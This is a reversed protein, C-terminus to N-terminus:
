VGDIFLRIALRAAIYLLVGGMVLRRRPLTLMHNIRVGPESGLQAGIFTLPVLSLAVHGVTGAGTYVPTAMLHPVSGAVSTAVMVMSSLAVAGRNSVIGISLALPLLVAGGGTGTAGGALGAFFGIIVAFINHRHVDEERVQKEKMRFSNLGVAVVFVLFIVLVARNSMRTTVWAGMYSGVISGSALVGALRWPVKPLDKNLRWANSASVLIIIFLSTGKATHEDMGSIFFMFAPVMLLGGGLGLAASFIGVGVGLVIMGFVYLVADM